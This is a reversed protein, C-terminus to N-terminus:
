RMPRGRRLAMGPWRGEHEVFAEVQREGDAWEPHHQEALERMRRAIALPGPMPTKQLLAVIGQAYETGACDYVAEIKEVKAPQQRTRMENMATQLDRASPMSSSPGHTHMWSNVCDHFIREDRGRFTFFPMAADPTVRRGLYRQLRGIENKIEEIGLM